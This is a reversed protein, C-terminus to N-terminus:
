RNEMSTSHVRDSVRDASSEEWTEVPTTQAWESTYRPYLPLLANPMALVAMTLPLTPEPGQAEQAIIERFEGALKARASHPMHPLVANVARRLISLEANFRSRMERRLGELDETINMLIELLESEDM